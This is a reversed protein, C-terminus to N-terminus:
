HVQHFKLGKIEKWVSFSHWHNNDNSILAEIEEKLSTKRWQFTRHLRPRERMAHGGHRCLSEQFDTFSNEVLLELNLSNAHLLFSKCSQRSTMLVQFGRTSWWLKPRVRLCFVEEMWKETATIKREKDSLFCLDWELAQCSKQLWRGHCETNGLKCHNNLLTMLTLGPDLDAQICGGVPPSFAWHRLSLSEETEYSSGKIAREAILGQWSLLLFMLRHKVWPKPFLLVTSPKWEYSASCHSPEKQRPVEAMWTANGSPSLLVVKSCAASFPQGGRCGPFMQNMQQAADLTLLVIITTLWGWEASSSWPFFGQPFHVRKFLIFWRKKTVSRKNLNNMNNSSLSAMLSCRATPCFSLTVGIAQQLLSPPPLSLGFSM